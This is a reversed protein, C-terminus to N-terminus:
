ASRRQTMEPPKPKLAKPQAPPRLSDRSSTSSDSNTRLIGAPVAASHPTSPSSACKAIPSAAAQPGCLHESHCPAQAAWLHPGSCAPTPWVMNEYTRTESLCVAFKVGKVSRDVREDRRCMAEELEQRAREVRKAAAAQRADAEKQMTLMRRDRRRTLLQVYCNLPLESKQCPPGRESEFEAAESQLWDTGPLPGSHTNNGHFLSMDVVPPIPSRNKAGGRVGSVAALSLAQRACVMTQPDARHAQNRPFFVSGNTDRRRIPDTGLTCPTSNLSQICLLEMELTRPSM